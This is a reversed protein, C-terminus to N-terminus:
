VLSELILDHKGNTSTNPLNWVSMSRVYESFYQKKERKKFSSGRRNCELCQNLYKTMDKIEIYASFMMPLLHPRRRSSRNSRIRGPVAMSCRLSALATRKNSTFLSRPNSYVPLINFWQYYHDFAHKEVFLVHALSIYYNGYFPFSTINKYWRWFLWYIIIETNTKTLLSKVYLLLM